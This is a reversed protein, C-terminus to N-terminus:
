ISRDNTAQAFILNYIKWDSGDDTFFDEKGGECVVIQNRSASTSLDDLAFRSALSPRVLTGAL